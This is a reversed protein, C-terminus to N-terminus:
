FFVSFPRRPKAEPTMTAAETHDRSIGEIFRDESRPFSEKKGATAPNRQPM